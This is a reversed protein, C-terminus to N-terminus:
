GGSPIDSIISIIDNNKLNIIESDLYIKGNILIIYRGKRIRSILDDGNKLGLKNSIVTFVEPAKNVPLEIKTKKKGVERAINGFLKVTIEVNMIKNEGM